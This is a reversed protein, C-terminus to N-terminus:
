RSVSRRKRWERFQMNSPQFPRATGSIPQSFYTSHHFISHSHSIEVEGQFNPGHLLLCRLLPRLHFTPPLPLWAAAPVHLRPVSAGGPLRAGESGNHLHLAGYSLQWNKAVNRCIESTKPQIPVSRQLCIRTKCCKEFDVLNDLQIKQIKAFNRLVRLM